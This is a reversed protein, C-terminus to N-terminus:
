YALVAEGDLVGFVPDDLVFPADDLSSLRFIVRHSDVSVSHEIGEVLGYRDIPTGGGPPTFLVQVVDGIELQSIRVAQSDTIRSLNVGLTDFVLKPESYKGVLFEALEQADSDTAFLLGDEELTRIGYVNQSTADYVTQAFGGSRTVTVRNYLLESGVAVGISDYVIGTGDDAFLVIDSSSVPTLRERFTLVGDGAAFLRGSETRSVLQLYSYVDTGESVSDAQLTTVGTAIDRQGAPFDVDSRDLVANVRAGSLQSTATHAAMKTRGLQALADTVICYAFADGQVDYSLNWDEVRGSFVTVGGVLIQVRKNPVINASYIGGGTPDYQRQRNRVTFQCVGPTIEDLWRSRGRRTGITVVDSTIDTAIDGALVYTTDDLKGRVPDNLTFVPTTPVDFYAIVQVAVPLTM